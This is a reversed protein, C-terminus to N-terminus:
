KDTHKRSQTTKTGIEMGKLIIATSCIGITVVLTSLLLYM